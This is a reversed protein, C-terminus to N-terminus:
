KGKMKLVVNFLKEILATKLNTYYKPYLLNEGLEVFGEELAINFLATNPEVRMSSFEFHVKKGMQIKAKLTFLIMLIFSILTQGPPNKFFNYSVEVGDIEKVVEYADLIRKKTINKGLKKLVENSFGDPSFIINTCGAKKVLEAFDTTFDCENFWASWKVNLDRKIIERCIKEAHNQPINFVSDIFTIRTVGYEEVLREIEDVVKVPEKLRYQTGNLFGYICYICHLACGRKTEIGIGDAFDEYDKLPLSSWDPPAILNLDQQEGAGTFIIEGDKRYFISKVEQPNDLNDLLVPFVKEGELFIGYDIRAEEEMIEMAFMSFGSGGVIIKAQSYKKIVDITDRLYSYYFVVERKNTSDINRLSIGVVQPLHNALVVKLDKFPKESANTDFVEIDHGTISAKIYALGIPFVLPENGGLYAQVLLVNM